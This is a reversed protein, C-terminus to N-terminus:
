SPRQQLEHLTVEPPCNLRANVVSTGAGVSTYGIMDHYRWPGAALRRPCRADWTLAVGGPLCIQGGHTHGCLFVDFGAHAAHRYVEPTHSLLISLADDPIGAAAKELNHVQYYHADDIGALHIRQGDREIQESENLLVRIELAELEPVLRLTDHNGLIAYVPGRLSPRLAQMASVVRDFPGFTKARFDGTLVCLEYRLDRVRETIAAANRPDMDLHLDSLHLIRFGAFAAPLKALALANHRVRINCANRQARDYLGVLRLCSRIFGHLSYWNEPYFFHAGPRNLVFVEHEGELGLRQRVHARGIRATLAELDNPKM